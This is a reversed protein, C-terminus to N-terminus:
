IRAFDAEIWELSAPLAMRYPRTDLGAGINLVIDVGNRVACTIYDDILCTRMVVTWGTMRVAPMGTAIKAGREGSLRAALSDRFLADPRRTEVARHHAIWFSTDSVDRILPDAM